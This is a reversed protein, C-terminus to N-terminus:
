IATARKLNSKFIPNTQRSLFGRESKPAGQDSIIDEDEKINKETQQRRHATHSTKNRIGASPVRAGTEDILFSDDNARQGSVAGFTGNEIKIPTELDDQIMDLGFNSSLNSKEKNLSIDGYLNKNIRVRKKKKPM